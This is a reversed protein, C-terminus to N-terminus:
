GHLLDILEYSERNLQRLQKQALSLASNNIEEEGEKEKLMIDHVQSDIEKQRQLIKNTERDQYRILAHVDMLMLANFTCDTCMIQTYGELVESGEKLEFTKECTYTATM